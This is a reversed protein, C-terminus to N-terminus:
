YNERQIKHNTVRRGAPRQFHLEVLNNPTVRVFLFPIQRTQRTQIPNGRTTSVLTQMLSVVGLAVQILHLDDTQLMRFVKKISNVRWEEGFDVDVCTTEINYVM